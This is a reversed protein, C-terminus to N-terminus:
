GVKHSITMERSYGSNDNYSITVRQVLYTGEKGPLVNDTYSVSDGAHTRPYAFGTFSGTFGDYAYQGYLSKAMDDAGAKDQGSYKKDVVRGGKNDTHGYEVQKRHGKEDFYTIKVKLNIDTVRKWELKSTKINKQRHYILPIGAPQWDWSFGIIIKNEVIRAYLGYDRQLKRYAEYTSCNDLEFKGLDTDPADITYGSTIEQLLAKLTVARYSKVWNNQKLPWWEDDCEIVLPMEANIRRVFGTFEVGYDGNYGAEIVVADGVKIYDLVTKGKIAGYNRPVEIRATNGIESISEDIKFSSIEPFTVIGVTVRSNMEFYPLVRSM